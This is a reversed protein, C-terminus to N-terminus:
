IGILAKIIHKNNKASNTFKEKLINNAMLKQITNKKKIDLLSKDVMRERNFLKSRLTSKGRSATSLRKQRNFDYNQLNMNEKYEEVLKTQQSTVVTTFPMRKNLEPLIKEGRTFENHYTSRRRSSIKRTMPRRYFCYENPQYNCSRLLIGHMERKGYNIDELYPNSDISNTKM